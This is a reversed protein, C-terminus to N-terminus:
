RGARLPVSECEEQGGKSQGRVPTRWKKRAIYATSSKWGLRNGLSILAIADPGNGHYFPLRVLSVVELGAREIKRIWAKEGFNIFESFNTREVGHIEPPSDKLLIRVISNWFKWDRSPMVHVMVGDDKLVRACEELALDYRPIHELMNSSFVFDFSQDPFLGLNTADCLEYRVNPINRERFRGIIINGAEELETCILKTCYKSIIESQSGDGAGLELADNFRVGEGFYQMIMKFEESRVFVHWEYLSHSNNM